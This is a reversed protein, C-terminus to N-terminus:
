LSEEVRSRDTFNGYLVNKDIFLNLQFLHGADTRLTLSRTTSFNYTGRYLKNLVM